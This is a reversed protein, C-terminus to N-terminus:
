FPSMAASSSLGALTKPYRIRNQVDGAYIRALLHKQCMEVTEPCFAAPLAVFGECFDKHCRFPSDATPNRPYSPM